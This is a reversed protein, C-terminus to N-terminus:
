RFALSHANLLKGVREIESEKNQSRARSLKGARRTRDRALYLDRDLLRLAPRQPLEQRPRAAPRADGARSNSRGGRPTLLLIIKM